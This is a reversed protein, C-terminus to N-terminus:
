GLKVNFPIEPKSLPLRSKATKKHYNLKPHHDVIDLIELFNSSTRFDRKFATISEGKVFPVRRMFKQLALKLKTIPPNVFLLKQAFCPCDSV